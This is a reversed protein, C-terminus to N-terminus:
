FALVHDIVEDNLHLSEIGARVTMGHPDELHATLVQINEGVLPLSLRRLMNEVSEALSEDLECVEGALVIVEPDHLNAINVLSRALIKSTRSILEKAKSDGQSVLKQLDQM